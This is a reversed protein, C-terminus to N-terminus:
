GAPAGRGHDCKWSPPLGPRDRAIATRTTSLRADVRGIAPVPKERGLLEELVTFVHRHRLRTKPSSSRPEPRRPLPRYARRARYSPYMVSNAPCSGDANYQRPARRHRALPMSRYNCELRALSRQVSELSACCSPWPRARRRRFEALTGRGASQSRRAARGGARWVNTRGAGCPSAPISRVGQM